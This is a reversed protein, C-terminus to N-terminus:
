SVRQFVVVRFSRNTGATLEFIRMFRGDNRLSDVPVDGWLRNGYHNEWLVISGVPATELNAQNLRPTLTQDYRDRDTLFVFWPHNAYVVSDKYGSDRLHNAATRIAQREPNLPIPKTTSVAVIAAALGAAVAFWVRSRRTGFRYTVLGALGLGATAMWRWEVRNETNFSHAILEHSFFTAVAATWIGAFGARLLWGGGGVLWRHVGWVAVLAIAPGSAVAHRLFGISRGFQIEEWALVMLVVLHVLALVAALRPFGQSTKPIRDKLAGVVGWLAFFLIVAGLTVIANELYHFPGLSNLPRGGGGSVLYLIEGTKLFGLGGWIVVPVWVGIRGRWGVHRWAAFFVVLTLVATEIRALPLLGALLLASEKQDRYWFWLVASLILAALPEALVSYSLELVLPQFLFFVLALWPCWLGAAGAALGVLVGAVASVFVTTTEAAGYGGVRAPVAYLLVTLPMAWRDLLLSPEQWVQRAMYYRDVDDDQYTGPSDAAYYLGLVLFVLGLGLIILMEHRKPATGRSM